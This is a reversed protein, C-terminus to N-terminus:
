IFVFHILLMYGITGVSISLLTNRKWIHVLATAVVCILKPAIININGTTFDSLCYVILAGIIALPLINGLYKIFKPVEKGSGFAAFPFLRTSFTVVSAVFIILIAKENSLPM